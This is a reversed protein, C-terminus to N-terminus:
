AQPAFHNSALLALALRDILRSELYLNAADIFPRDCASSPYLGQNPLLYFCDLCVDGQPRRLWFSYEWCHLQGNLAVPRSEGDLAVGLVTACITGGAVKLKGASNENRDIDLSSASLRGLFAANADKLQTLASVAIEISQHQTSM